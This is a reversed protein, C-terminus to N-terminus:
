IQKHQQSFLYDKWPRFTNKDILYIQNKEINDDVWVEMGMVTCILPKATLTITKDCIKITPTDPKSILLMNTTIGEIKAKNIWAFLQDTTIELM